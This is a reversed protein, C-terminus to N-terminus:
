PLAPRHPGLEDTLWLLDILEALRRDTAAPDTLQDAVRRLTALVSQRSAETPHATFVPRLETRTLISLLRERDDDTHLREVLRHLPGGDQLRRAALERSRHLQEAVNALQFFTSFARALMVATPVDVRSLLEALEDTRSGGAEECSQRALRRVREVLDLLDPGAQRVLTDGLMGGLRRIDARMASHGAESAVGAHTEVPDRAPMPAM